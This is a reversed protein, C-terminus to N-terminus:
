DQNGHFCRFMRDIHALSNSLFGDIESYFSTTKRRVISLGHYPPSFYELSSMLAYLLLRDNYLERRSCVLLTFKNRYASLLREFPERVMIIKKYNKLKFEIEDLSFSDLYTLYKDYTMHVDAAKLAM